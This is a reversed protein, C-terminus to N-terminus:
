QNQAMGNLWQQVRPDKMANAGKHWPTKPNSLDKQIAEKLKEDKIKNFSSVLQQLCAISDVVGSTSNTELISLVDSGKSSPKCVLLLAAPTGQERNGRGAM